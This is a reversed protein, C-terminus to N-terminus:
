CEMKYGYDELADSFAQFQESKDGNIVGSMAFSFRDSLLERILYTKGIRRRGYVAIFEAQDSQLKSELFRIEADRCIANM